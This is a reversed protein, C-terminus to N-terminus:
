AEKHATRKLNKRYEAPLSHVYRTFVRYFQNLNSFGCHISIDRINMNSIQLLKKAESLRLFTVYEKFGMNMTEKFLHRFRSSSMYIAASVEELTIKKLYHANIYHVAEFLKNNKTPDYAAHNECKDKYYRILISLLLRLHADIEYKLGPKKEAWLQHMKLMIEQADKAVATRGSIKHEFTAANYRFPYLYELDFQRCGPFAILEPLFVVFLYETKEGAHAVAVHSEFNNTIFIDGQEVDYVKNSFFFEGTGSLCVAVQMYKHWHMGDNAGYATYQFTAFPFSGDLDSRNVFGEM